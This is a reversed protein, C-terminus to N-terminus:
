LHQGHHIDVQVVDEGRGASLGAHFLGRGSDGGGLLGGCAGGSVSVLDLNIDQVRFRVETEQSPPPLRLGIDGSGPHEGACCTRRFTIMEEASMLATSWPRMSGGMRRVTGEPVSGSIAVANPFWRGQPDGQKVTQDTPRDTRQDTPTPTPGRLIVM